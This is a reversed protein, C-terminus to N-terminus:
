SSWVMTPVAGGPGTLTVNAYQLTAEVDLTSCNAPSISNNIDIIPNSDDDAAVGTAPDYTGPVELDIGAAPLQVVCPYPAMMPLSATVTGNGSSGSPVTLKAHLTGLHPTGVVTHAPPLPGIDLQWQSGPAFSLNVPSGDLTLVCGTLTTAPPDLMVTITSGPAGRPPAGPVTYDVGTVAVNACAITIPNGGWAIVLRLNLNTSTVVDGPAAFRPAAPTSDTYGLVWTVGAAHAPALWGGALALALTTLLAALTRRRASM